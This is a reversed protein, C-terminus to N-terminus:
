PIEFVKVFLSNEKIHELLIVSVLSSNKLNELLVPSAYQGGFSKNTKKNIWYGQDNPSNIEKFSEIKM